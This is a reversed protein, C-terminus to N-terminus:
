VAQIYACDNVEQRRYRGPTPLCLGDPGSDTFLGLSAGASLGISAELYPSRCQINLANLAPLRYGAFLNLFFFFCQYLVARLTPPSQVALSVSGTRFTKMQASHGCINCVSLRKSNYLYSIYFFLYM